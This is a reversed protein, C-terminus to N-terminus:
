TEMKERGRTPLAPTPTPRDQLHDYIFATPLKVEDRIRDAVGEIAQLVDKNWFRIVRYGHKELIQSREMDYQVTDSHQGGDLEIILKPYHCAFDAIFKGIVVQRRFHRVELKFLKLHQWLM